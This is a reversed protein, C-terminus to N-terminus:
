PRGKKPAGKGKTAEAKAKLDAFRQSRAKAFDTGGTPPAGGGGCGVLPSAGLALAVARLVTRRLVPRPITNM